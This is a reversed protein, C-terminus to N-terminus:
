FMNKVFLHVNEISRIVVLNHKKFVLNFNKAQFFLNKYM